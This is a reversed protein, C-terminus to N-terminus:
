GATARELLALRQELEVAIRRLRDMLESPRAALDLPDAFHWGATFVLGEVAPCPAGAGLDVLVARVLPARAGASSAALCGGAHAHLLGEAVLSRAGNERDVFLARVPRAPAVCM